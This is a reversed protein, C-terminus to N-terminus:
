CRTCRMLETNSVFLLVTKSYCLYKRQQLFSLVEHESEPFNKSTSDSIQFIKCTSDPIRPKLIRFVTCPIRFGVLSQFGSDWNWQCLSFVMVQFGSDVTHFGSDLVTKSEMVHPSGTYLTKLRTELMSAFKNFCFFM